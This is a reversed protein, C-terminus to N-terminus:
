TLWEDTKFDVNFVSVLEKNKIKINESCKLQETWWSKIKMNQDKIKKFM